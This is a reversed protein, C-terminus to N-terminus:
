NLTELSLNMVRSKTPRKRKFSEKRHIPPEMEFSQLSAGCGDLNATDPVEDDHHHKSMHMM